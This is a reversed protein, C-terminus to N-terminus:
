SPFGESPKYIRGFKWSYWGGDAIEPIGPKIDQLSIEPLFTVTNVYRYSKAGVIAKNGDL